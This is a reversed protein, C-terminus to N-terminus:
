YYTYEGEFQSVVNGDALTRTETNEGRKWAKSDDQYRMITNTEADYSVIVFTRDGFTVQKKILIGADNYAMEELSTGIDSKERRRVV